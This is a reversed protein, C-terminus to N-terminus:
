ERPSRAPLALRSHLVATTGTVTQSSQWHLSRTEEGPEVYLSDAGAKTGSDLVPERRQGTASGCQGTVTGCQGTVTGCQGTVPAETRNFASRAAAFRTALASRSGSPWEEQAEESTSQQRRPETCLRV